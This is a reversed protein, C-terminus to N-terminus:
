RKPRAGMRIAAEILRSGQAKSSQGQTGESDQLVCEVKYPRGYFKELQNEMIYRYKQEEVKNKHFAHLFRLVLVDGEVAVPECASRLFADLNGTSGLGRLSDVYDKWRAQVAHLETDGTANGDETPEAVEGNTGADVVPQDSSPAPGRVTDATTEEERVPNSLPQEQAERPSSRAEPGPDPKGESNSRPSESVCGRADAPKEKKLGRPAQRPPTREQAESETKMEIGTSSEMRRMISDVCALELGLLQQSSDRTSAESFLRTSDALLGIGTQGALRELEAREDPVVDAAEACGSKILLLNRFAAVVQRGFQRLDVGCENAEHLVRLAGALDRGVVRDVLHMVRSEESVGLAARVSEVTLSRGVNSVLQQTLNEADRLSGSAFRAILALCDDDVDVAEREAVLRLRELISEISLRRFTFCQCRSAITPLVKHFETTALVFMVHPPPEELTKLLANSAAETLMHVEDVVYVKRSVSGAAYGVKERLSRIDDIGRNSAADIEIIDLCRGDTISVCAECTNCPEGDIPNLCNVAKALIRGTSTKGTGRPGSFLYAHGVRGARVANRLTTTVHVQGVVENFSQPRWKRYLVESSM